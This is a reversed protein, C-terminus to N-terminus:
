SKQIKKYLSNRSRQPEMGLALVDIISYLGKFFCNREKQQIIIAQSFQTQKISRWRKKRFKIETVKSYALLRYLHLKVQDSLQNKCSKETNM